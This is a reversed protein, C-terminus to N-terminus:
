QFIRHGLQFEKLSQLEPRLDSASTKTKLSVRGVVGIELFKIYSELESIKKEREEFTLESPHRGLNPIISSQSDRVVELNPTISRPSNQAANYAYGGHLLGLTAVGILFSAFTVAVKAATNEWNRKGSLGLPDFFYGLGESIASTM